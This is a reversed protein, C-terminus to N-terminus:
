SETGTVNDALIDDLFDAISTPRIGLAEFGRMAPSVVTDRQMLELQNRTVPPKPSFEAIAVVGFWLPYPIRLFIPRLGTREALLRLLGEYTFVEPGGLELVQAPAEEKLCRTVAEAVDEVYAPQLRTKGSGFLPFIPVRRLLRALPCVLSDHQGFMVAPRVVTASPFAAGVAREGEGRSRIYSSRVTPDAGIGSIHILRKVGIEKALSAVREAAEVHISHFTATGREAYLSVANVVADVGSIVARTSEQDCVDAHVPDVRLNRGSFLKEAQDPHRSAIRVCYGDGLLHRVIRRGLFGTGGIVTVNDSMLFYDARAM